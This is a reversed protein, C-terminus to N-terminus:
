FFYLMYAVQTGKDIRVLIRQNGSEMGVSACVCGAQAMKKDLLLRCVLQLRSQLESTHEESRTLGVPRKSIPPGIPSAPRVPRLIMMSVYPPMARWPPPAKEPLSGDLTSREAAYAIRQTAFFTTAAPRAERQSTWTAYAIPLASGTPRNTSVKPVALTSASFISAAIAVTKSRRGAAIM